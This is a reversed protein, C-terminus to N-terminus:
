KLSEQNAIDYQAYKSEATSLAWFIGLSMCIVVLAYYSLDKM